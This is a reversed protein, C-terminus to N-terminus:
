DEHNTSKKTEISDRIMWGLVHDYEMMTMTMTTMTMTMTITLTTMTMMTQSENRKM